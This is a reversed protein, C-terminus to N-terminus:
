KDKPLNMGTGSIGYTGYGLKGTLSEVKAEAEEQTYNASNVLSDIVTQKGNTQIDKVIREDPVPLKIKTTEPVEVKPKLNNKTKDTDELAIKVADGGIVLNYAENFNSLKTGKLRTVYTQKYNNLQKIRFSKYEKPKLIKSVNGASDFSVIGSGELETRQTSLQKSLFTQMDTRYSKIRTLEADGGEGIEKINNLAQLGETAKKFAEDDGAQEAKLANQTLINRTAEINKPMTLSNINADTLNAFTVKTPDLTSPIGLGAMQEARTKLGESVGEQAGAGLDTEFKIPKMYSKAYDEVTFNSGEFTDPMSGVYGSLDQGLGKLQLGNNAFMTADDVNGIKNYLAAAHDVNGDTLQALKKIAGEVLEAKNEEKDRKKWYRQTHTDWAKDVLLNVRKENSEIGEAVSESLGGVFAGFNFAM